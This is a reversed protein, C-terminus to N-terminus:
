FGRWHIRDATPEIWDLAVCNIEGHDINIDDDLMHRSRTFRREEESKGILKM